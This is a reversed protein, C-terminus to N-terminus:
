KTAPLVVIRLSIMPGNPKRPDEAVRLHACWGNVYGGYTCSAFHPQGSPPHWSGSGGFLWIVLGLAALASVALLSWTLRPLSRRPPRRYEGWRRLLSNDSGNSMALARSGLM